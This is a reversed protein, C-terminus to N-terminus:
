GLRRSWELNQLMLGLGGTILIFILLLGGFAPLSAFINAKFGITFRFVFWWLGFIISAFFLHIPFWSFIMKQPHIEKRGIYEWVLKSFFIMGILIANFSLLSHDQYDVPIKLFIGTVRQPAINGIGVKFIIIVHDLTALLSTLFVITDFITTSSCGLKHYPTTGFFEIKNLIMMSIFVFSMALFFIVFDQNIIM